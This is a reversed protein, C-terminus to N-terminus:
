RILGNQIQDTYTQESVSSYCPFSPLHQLEYSTVLLTMLFSPLSLWLIPFDPTTFRAYPPASSCYVLAM